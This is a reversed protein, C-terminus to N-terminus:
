QLPSIVFAYGNGDTITFSGSKNVGYAVYFYSYTGEIIDLRNLGPSITKFYTQGQDGTLTINVPFAYHSGIRLNTPGTVGFSFYTLKECSKLTLEAKGNKTIRVEGGLTEGCAEYSYLYTGV